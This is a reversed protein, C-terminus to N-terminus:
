GAVFYDDDHRWRSTGPRFWKAVPLELLGQVSEPPRRAV